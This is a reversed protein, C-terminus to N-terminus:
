TTSQRGRTTIRRHQRLASSRVDKGASGLYSTMKRDQTAKEWFKEDFVVNPRAQQVWLARCPVEFHMQSANAM